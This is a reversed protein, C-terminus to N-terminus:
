KCFPIVIHHFHIEDDLSVLKTAYINTSKIHMTWSLNQQSDLFTRFASKRRRFLIFMAYPSMHALQTGCQIRRQIRSVLDIFWTCEDHIVLERFLTTMKRTLRFIDTGFHNLYWLLEKQLSLFYSPTAERVNEQKDLDFWFSIQHFKITHLIMLEKLM